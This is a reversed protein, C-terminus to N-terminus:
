PQTCFKSSMAYSSESALGALSADTPHMIWHHSMWWCLPRSTPLQCPHHLQKCKTRLPHLHWVFCLYTISTICPHPMFGNNAGLKLKLLNSSSLSLRSILFSSKQPMPHAMCDNLAVWCLSSSLSTHIDESSVPIVVVLWCQLIHSFEKSVQFWLLYSHTPTRIWAPNKHAHQWTHCQCHGAMVKKHICVMIKYTVISYWNHLRTCVM